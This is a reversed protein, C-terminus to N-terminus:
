RHITLHIQLNNVDFPFEIHVEISSYLQLSGMEPCDEVVNHRMDIALSGILGLSIILPGQIHLCRIMPNSSPAESEAEVCGWFVLFCLFHALFDNIEASVGLVEVPM